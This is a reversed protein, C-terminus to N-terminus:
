RWSVHKLRRRAWSNDSTLQMERRVWQYVVKDDAIFRTITRDYVTLQIILLSFLITVATKYNIDCYQPVPFILLKLIFEHCKPTWLKGLYLLQVLYTLHSVFFVQRHGITMTLLHALFRQLRVTRTLSIMSFTTLKTCSLLEKLCMVLCCHLPLSPLLLLPINIAWGPVIQLHTISCATPGDTQREWFHSM